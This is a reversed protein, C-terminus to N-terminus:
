YLQRHLFQPVDNIIYNALNGCSKQGTSPHQGPSLRLPLHLPSAPQCGGIGQCALPILSQFNEFFQVPYLFFPVNGWEFFKPDIQLWSELVKTEHFSFM